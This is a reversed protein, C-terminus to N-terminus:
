KKYRSRINVVHEERSERDIINENRITLAIKNVQEPSLMVNKYGRITEKLQNEYIAGRPNTKLQCGGSFVVISHFPVNGLLKQLAKIHGENQKLPSYFRNKNGSLVQTWYFEDERGYIWGKYNKTEIVFVGYPSVVLHDIQSTGKASELMINHLAKYEGPLSELTIFVSSEGMIGKIKSKLPDPQRNAPATSRKPQSLHEIHTRTVTKSAKRKSRGKSKLLRLLVSLSILILIYPWTMRFVTFIGGFLLNSLTASDIVASSANSTVVYTSLMFSM